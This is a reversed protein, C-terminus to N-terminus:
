NQISINVKQSNRALTTQLEQAFLLYRSPSVTIYDAIPRNKKQTNVLVECECMSVSVACVRYACNNFPM